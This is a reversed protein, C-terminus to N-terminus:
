GGSGQWLRGTKSNHILSVTILLGWANFITVDELQKSKHIRYIAHLETDSDSIQIESLNIRYWSTQLLLRTSSFTATLSFSAELKFTDSLSPHSHDHSVNQVDPTCPHLDTRVLQGRLTCLPMWFIGSHHWWRYLLQPLAFCRNWSALSQIGPELAVNQPSQTFVQSFTAGFKPSFLYPQKVMVVSRRV